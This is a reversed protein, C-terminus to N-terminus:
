PGILGLDIRNAQQDIQATVVAATYVDDVERRRLGQGVEACCTCFPQGDRDLSARVIQMEAGFLDGITGRLVLASRGDSRAGVTLPEPLRESASIDIQDRRVM